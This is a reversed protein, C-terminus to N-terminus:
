CRKGAKGRLKCFRECHQLQFPLSALDAPLFPSIHALSLGLVKGGPGLLRSFIASSGIPAAKQGMAPFLQSQSRATRGRNSKGGQKMSCYSFFTVPKSGDSQM